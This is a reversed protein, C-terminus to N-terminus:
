EAKTLYVGRGSAILDGDSERLVSAEAVALTRGLKILKGIARLAEGELATKHFDVRMDITPVGRGLKAAIAYDAALDVLAALIGGHTYRVTPDSVMEARWPMRIEVEAEDLRVLDLGLWAHYPCGIVMARLADFGVVNPTPRKPKTGSKGEGPKGSM